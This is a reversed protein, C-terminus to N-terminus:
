RVPSSSGYDPPAWRMVSRTPKPRAVTTFGAAEFLSATGFWLADDRSGAAPHVPYAELMVGRQAAIRQAEGLLARAMGHHRYATPVVFCIVSWVPADDIARMVPSRSLKAFDERPGFSLWGAPHDDAYAIVGTFRGSQVIAHFLARAAQARPLAPDLPPPGSFRYDICWCGRAQGCGRAAFVSALDPWSQPTLPAFRLSQWSQGTM